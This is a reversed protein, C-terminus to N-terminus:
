FLADGANRKRVNCTDLSSQKLRSPLTQIIIMKGMEEPQSDEASLMGQRYKKLTDTKM